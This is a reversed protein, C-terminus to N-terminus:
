SATSDGDESSKKNDVLKKSGNAVGSQYVIMLLLYVVLPALGILAGLSEILAEFVDFIHNAIKIEAIGKKHTVNLEDYQYKSLTDKSWVRVLLDSEGRISGLNLIKSFEIVQLDRDKASVTALGYLPLEFVVSEAHSRGINKIVFSTYGYYEPAGDWLIDPWLERAFDSLDNALDHSSLNKFEKEKLIKAIRSNIKSYSIVEKSEKIAEDLNPPYRFEEPYAYVILEPDDNSFVYNYISFIAVVLGLLVSIKGIISWFNEKSKSGDSM